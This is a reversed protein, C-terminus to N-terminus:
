GNKKEKKNLENMLEAFNNIFLHSEKKKQEDYDKSANDFVAVTIFGNNFATRVCTPMDEIVLINEKKTKMKDALYEYIKASQKGEEVSNVDAVFSFYKLIDLRKLCPMYLPEDNATAISMPIKKSKFFELLEIAGEKLKVDNAYMDISMQHWEDMIEQESEKIGYTEKTFKAAQKLGLHVINQAYDKPLEMGRKEFFKVDIEHWLSTSDILTGDMDFIVAKVKKSKLYVPKRVEEILVIVFLVVFCAGAIAFFVLAISVDLLLVMILGLIAFLYVFAALVLKLTARVKKSM